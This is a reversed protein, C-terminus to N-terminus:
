VSWAQAYCGRAKYHNDGDFIEDISGLCQNQIYNEMDGMLSDGLKFVEKSYDNM